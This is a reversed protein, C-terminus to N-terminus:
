GSQMFDLARESSRVRTEHYSALRPEDLTARGAGTWGRIRRQRRAVAVEESDRDPEEM